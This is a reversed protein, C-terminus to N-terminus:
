EPESAKATSQRSGRRALRELDGLRRDVAAMTRSLDETDDDLFTRVILAYAVGLARARLAGRVGSSSLGAAELVLRMSSLGPGAAAALAGGPDGPVGAIIARLGERRDRLYDFRAMLLTFLRDRVSEDRWDADVTALMAQDARAALTRLVGHRSGVADRVQAATLGSEEAIDYLTTNNWGRTAALTLAADLCTGADDRKRAM